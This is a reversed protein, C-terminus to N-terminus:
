TSLVVIFDDMLDIWQREWNSNCSIVPVLLILVVLLLGIFFLISFLMVSINLFPLFSFYCFDTLFRKSRSGGVEDLEGFTIM